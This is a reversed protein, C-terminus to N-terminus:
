YKNWVKKNKARPGQLEKRKNNTTVIIESKTKTKNWIKKNKFKAGYTDKNVFSKVKILTNVKKLQWPKQNKVQPGTLINKEQALFSSGLMIFLIFTTKKVLLKM